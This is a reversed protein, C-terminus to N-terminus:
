SALAARLQELREVAAHFEALMGDVIDRVTGETRILGAVQGAAMLKEQPDGGQAPNELLAWIPEDGKLALSRRNKLMHVSFRPFRVDLTDTDAASLLATKHLDHIACERSVLFRTGMLVGEAGLALAAAVGRGDGIGGAAVVPLSVADVVQPILPLTAVADLSNLGGSEFGKAIIGDLGLTEAGKAQAV